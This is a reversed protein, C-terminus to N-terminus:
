ASKVSAIKAEFDADSMGQYQNTGSFGGGASFQAPNGPKEANELIKTVQALVDDQQGGGNDAAPEKPLTQGIAYATALPNASGKYALEVSQAFSPDNAMKTKLRSMTEHYDPNSVATALQTIVSNVQANNAQNSQSTQELIAKVDKVSILDDNDRGALLDNQTPQATPQATNVPATQMVTQQPPNAKFVALQDKLSQNEDRVAQLVTVPIKTEKPEQNGGQGGNAPAQNTNQAAGTDGASAAGEQSGAASGTAGTQGDIDM